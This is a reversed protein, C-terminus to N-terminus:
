YTLLFLLDRKRALSKRYYEKQYTKNYAKEAETEKIRCEEEKQISAKVMRNMDVYHNQSAM